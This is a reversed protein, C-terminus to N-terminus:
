RVDAHSPKTPHAPARDEVHAAPALGPMFVWFRNCIYNVAPILLAVTAIAIRPSLGAADAILWTTVTALIFTLGTIVMFRWFIVRHNTKVRFSYASHGIYSVGFAVAQALVSSPVPAIRLAENAVLSILVYVLTACIGVLGFRVFRGIEIKADHFEM